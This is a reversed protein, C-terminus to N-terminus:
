GKQTASVIREATTEDLATAREHLRKLIQGRSERDTRQALKFKSRLSTGHVRVVSLRTIQRRYMENDGLVEAHKGEPQYRRMIGRLHAATTEVEAVVETNGWLSACRYFQDAHTADVPDMWHSPAGALVEDVEIVAPSGRRIDDLQPDDSVLHLEVTLGEHVFVHVGIRPIGDGDITVLRVLRQSALLEVVQEHSASFAPYEKMTAWDIVGDGYSGM